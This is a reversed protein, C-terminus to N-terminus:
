EEAQAFSYHVDGGYISFYMKFDKDCDRNKSFHLSRELGDKSREVECYSEVMHKLRNSGKFENGKTM